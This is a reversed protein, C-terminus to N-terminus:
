LPGLHINGSMAIKPHLGEDVERDSTIQRDPLAIIRTYLTQQNRSVRLTVTYVTHVRLSLRPRPCGCCCHTIKRHRSVRLVCFFQAWSMCGLKQKEVM